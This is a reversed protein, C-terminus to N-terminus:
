RGLLYKAAFSIGLILGLPLAISAASLIFLLNLNAAAKLPRKAVVSEVGKEAPYSEDGLGEEGAEIWEGAGAVKLVLENQHTVGIMLSQLPAGATFRFVLYSCLLRTQEWTGTSFLMNVPTSAGYCVVRTTTFIGIHVLTSLENLASQERYINSAVILTAANTAADLVIPLLLHKEGALALVPAQHYSLYLYASSSALGIFCTTRAGLRRFTLVFLQETAVYTLLNIWNCTQISVTTQVDFPLFVYHILVLIIASNKLM